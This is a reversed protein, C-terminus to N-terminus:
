NDKCYSVMEYKKINSYLAFMTRFRVSHQRYGTIFIFNYFLLSFQIKKQFNM